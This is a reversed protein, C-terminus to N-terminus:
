RFELGDIPEPHSSGLLPDERRRLLREVEGVPVLRRGGIRTTAIQGSAALRRVTSEGLGLAGALEPLGYALRSSLEPRAADRRSVISGLPLGALM